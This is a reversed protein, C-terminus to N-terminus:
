HTPTPQNANPTDWQYTPTWRAGFHWLGIDDQWFSKSDTESANKVPSIICNFNKRHKDFATIGRFSEHCGGCHYASNPVDKGCRHRYTNPPRTTM